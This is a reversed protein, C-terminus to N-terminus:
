CSKGEITICPRITKMYEDSFSLNMIEEPIDKMIPKFADALGEVFLKYQKKNQKKRQRKNM